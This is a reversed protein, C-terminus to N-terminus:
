SAPQDNGAFEDGIETARKAAAEVGAIFKPLIGTQDFAAIAAETTGNKSTVNKRLQTPSDHSQAALLAAGRFTEVAFLRADAASFGLKIAAQELAEIAYFVYAPGSGSVATVADLMAENEFWVTKGIAGLLMEATARRGENVTAAAYLGTIGAQILAPTNPMARVIQSSGLWKALEITRIGAAISIVLQQNLNNNMPMLAQQMIQPKVALVVVNIDALVTVMDATSALVNVGIKASLDRTGVDPEFVFFTDAPHGRAILGGTMAQMMKGGGVFLINLPASKIPSMDNHLFTTVADPFSVINATHPRAHALYRM